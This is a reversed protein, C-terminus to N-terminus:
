PDGTSSEDAAAQGFEIGGESDEIELVDCVKRGDRQRVTGRIVVAAGDEILGAFRELPEAPM